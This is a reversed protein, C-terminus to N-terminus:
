RSDVVNRCRPEHIQPETETRCIFTPKSGEKPNLIFTVLLLVPQGRMQHNTTVTNGFIIPALASINCISGGVHLSPPSLSASTM